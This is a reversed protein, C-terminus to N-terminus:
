WHSRSIYANPVSQITKAVCSHISSIPKKMTPRVTPASTGALQVSIV